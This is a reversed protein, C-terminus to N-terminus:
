GFVQALSIVIAPDQSLALSDSPGHVTIEAYGENAPNRYADLTRAKLDIIWYEPIGARAYLRLKITRDYRLFTNAVEILLLTDKPGAREGTRYFDARRRYIAFDPQPENYRDLRVPNQVSVIARGQCALVLTENLIDVTSIHDQGIPAMDIIDGDILEVRAEWGLVGTEGLAQYEDVTIKHRTPLILDDM